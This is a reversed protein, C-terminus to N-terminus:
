KKSLLDAIQAATCNSLVWGRGEKYIECIFIASGTVAFGPEIYCNSNVTTHFDTKQMIEYGEYFLTQSFFDDQNSSSLSQKRARTPSLPTPANLSTLLDTAETNYRTPPDATIDMLLYIQIYQDHHVRRSTLRTAKCPIISKAWTILVHPVISHELLMKKCTLEVVTIPKKSPKFNIKKWGASTNALIFTDYVYMDSPAGIYISLPSGDWLSYIQVSLEVAVVLKHSDIYVKSIGKGVDVKRPHTLDDLSFLLLTDYSAVILKSEDPDMAIHQVFFNLDQIRHFENRAFNYISITNRTEKYQQCVVTTQGLYLLDFGSCELDQTGVLCSESLNYVSICTPNGTDHVCMLVKQPDHDYFKFAYVAPFQLVCRKDAADKSVVNLSVISQPYHSVARTMVVFPGCLVRYDFTFKSNEVFISEESINWTEYWSKAPLDSNIYSVTGHFVGKVQSSTLIPRTIHLLRFQSSMNTSNETPVVNSDMHMTKVVVRGKFWNM